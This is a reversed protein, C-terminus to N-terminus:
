KKGKKSKQSKLERVRDSIKTEVNEGGRNRRAMEEQRRRAEMIKEQILKQAITISSDDSHIKNHIPRTPELIANQQALHPPILTWFVNRGLLHQKQM